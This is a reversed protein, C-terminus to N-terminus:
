RRIREIDIRLSWVIFMLRIGYLDSPPVKHGEYEFGNRMPRKWIEFQPLFSISWEEKSIPDRHLGICIGVVDSAQIWKSCIESTFKFPNIM